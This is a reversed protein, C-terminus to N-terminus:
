ALTVAGSGPEVTLTFRLFPCCRRELRILETAAALAEDSPALEVAYGDARETVTRAHTRFVALTTRQRERREPTSLSCAIPIDPTVATDAAAAHRVRLARAAARRRRRPDERPASRAGGQARR